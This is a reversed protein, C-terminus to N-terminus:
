CHDQEKVRMEKFTSGKISNSPAWFPGSHSGPPDPLSLVVLTSGGMATTPNGPGGPQGKPEEKPEM